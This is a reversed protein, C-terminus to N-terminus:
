VSCITPLTLHTYSVAEHIDNFLAPHSEECSSMIQNTINTWARLTINRAQTQIKDNEREYRMRLELLRLYQSHDSPVVPLKSLDWLKLEQVDPHFDGQCVTLLGQAAFRMEVAKIFKEAISRPPRAGPHPPLQKPSSATQIQDKGSMQKNALVPPLKSGCHPTDRASGLM